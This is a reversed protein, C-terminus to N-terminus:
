MGRVSAAVGKGEKKPIAGFLHEIEKLALAITYYMNLDRDLVLGKFATDIQLSLLDNEMPILYLPLSGIIDFSGFVEETTLISECVDTSQPCMYLDYRHKEQQTKYEKIHKAILKMNPITPRVVFVVIDRAECGLPEGTLPQTKLVGHDKLLSQRVVLSLPGILDPDLALFKGGPAQDLIEVLKDQVQDKLVQFNITPEAEM